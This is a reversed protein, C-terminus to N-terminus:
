KIIKDNKYKNWHIFCNIDMLRDLRHCWVGPNTQNFGKDDIKIMTNYNWGEVYPIPVRIQPIFNSYEQLGMELSEEAAHIPIDLSCFYGRELFYRIMKKWPEFEDWLNENDFNPMFSHNAGFFIHECQNNSYHTEIQKINQIGVVFLTAKEQTFLLEVESGIFFSPDKENIQNQYTRKM